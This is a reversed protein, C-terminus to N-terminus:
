FAFVRNLLDTRGAPGRQSDKGVHLVVLRFVAKLAPVLNKNKGISHGFGFVFLLLFKSQVPQFVQEGVVGTRRFLKQLIQFVCDFLEGFMGGLKVVQGGKCKFGQLPPEEM